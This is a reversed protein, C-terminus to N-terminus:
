LVKVPGTHILNRARGDSHWTMVPLFPTFLAQYTSSSFWDLVWLTDILSLNCLYLDVTRYKTRDLLKFKNLFYVSPINILHAPDFLFFKSYTTHGFILM